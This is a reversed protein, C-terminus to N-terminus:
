FLQYRGRGLFYGQETAPDVCTIGVDELVCAVTTDSWTAVTGYALTPADPERITDSNCVAEPGTETFEIRGIRQSPGDAPCVDPDPI